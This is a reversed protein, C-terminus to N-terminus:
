IAAYRSEDRGIDHAMEVRAILVVEALRAGLAEAHRELLEAGIAVRPDASKALREFRQPHREFRLGEDTSRRRKIGVVDHEAAKLPRSRNAVEGQQLGVVRDRCPAIPHEIQELAKRAFIGAASDPWVSLPSAPANRLM